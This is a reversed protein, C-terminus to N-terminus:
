SKNKKIWANTIKGFVLQHYGNTEKFADEIFTKGEQTYFDEPAVATIEWLKCEIVLNAEKYTINGSPTKVYTLPNNKMKDSDRGSKSGFYLVQQKYEDAFHSLTYTQEKKIFELTYRNARLFCWTGPSDLLNGWGGAGATMSNFDAEQGATIVMFDQGILKFVNGTIEVPQISQFLEDFSQEKVDKQTVVSEDTAKKATQGCSVSIVM